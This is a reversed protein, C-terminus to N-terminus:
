NKQMRLIAKFGKKSKQIDRHLGKVTLKKKNSFEYKYKICLFFVTMKWHLRM